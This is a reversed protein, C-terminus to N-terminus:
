DFSRQIIPLADNARADCLMACVTFGAPGFCVLHGSSNGFPAARNALHNQMQAIRVDGCFCTDVDAFRGM